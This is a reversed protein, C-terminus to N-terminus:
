KMWSRFLWISCKRAQFLIVIHEQGEALAQSVDSWAGGM